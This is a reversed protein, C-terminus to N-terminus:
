GLTNPPIWLLVLHISVSGQQLVSHVRRWFVKYPRWPHTLFALVGTRFRWVLSTPWINEALINSFGLTEHLCKGWRWRTPVSQCLWGKKSTGQEQGPRSPGKLRWPIQAKRRDSEPWTWRPSPLWIWAYVKSGGSVLQTTGPLHGWGESGSPTEAALIPIEYRGWTATCILFSPM